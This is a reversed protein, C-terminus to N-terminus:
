NTESLFRKIKEKQFIEIFSEKFLIREFNEKYYKLEQENASKNEGYEIKDFYIKKNLINLAGKFNLNIKNNTIEDTLSFKRFFSKKNDINLNCIFNIRPYDEKLNSETKCNIYGGSFLIKKSAFYNGHELNVDMSLSDFISFYFKKSKYNILIKGNIKKIIEKKQIIKELLIKDFFSQKIDKIQITSITSFFPSLSIISDFSLSLDKNKFNSKFLKIKDKDYNFDFKLYNKLFNIKSTGILPEIFKENKFKINAEIGTNLINFNIERKKKKLFSKFKKNFIEGTLHDKNYGYNTFFIKKIKVLSTDNHILDINLDQIKLKQKFNYIFNILDKVNNTELYINSKIFYIKKIDLQDYNYINRFHLFLNVEKSKINTFNNQFKFEANEISLNPLPFINFKIATYNELKLDYHKIIFTKIINSKKEYNFFKPTILFISSSILFIVLVYRLFFFFKFYKSYRNHITKYFKNIM